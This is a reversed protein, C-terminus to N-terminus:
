PKELHNIKGSGSFSTNVAPSGYYDVDGSGTIKVDLTDDVWLTSNGSGAVSISATQSALEAARYDGSGAVVLTQDSVEGALSCKGSGSITTTLSIAALTEFTVNGSGSVTVTVDDANLTEIAINGSGSLMLDLTDAEIKESRIDGSGSLTVARIDKVTLHYKIPETPVFSKLEGSKFGIELTDGRVKSEIYPLLNDEAEIELAETEGQTITLEGMGALTVKDFGSVSRTESTVNGSGRVIGFGCGSLLVLATFIVIMLSMQKKM